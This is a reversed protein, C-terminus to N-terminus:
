NSVNLCASGENTATGGAKKFLTACYFGTSINRDITFHADPLNASFGGEMNFPPMNKTVGTPTTPNQSPGHFQIYGDTVGNNATGQGLTADMQLVYTGGTHIIAFCLSPAGPLSTLKACGTTTTQAGALGPALVAGGAVTGGGLATIAASIKVPKTMLKM